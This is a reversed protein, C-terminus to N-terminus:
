YMFCELERQVLVIFRCIALSLYTQIITIQKSNSNYIYRLDKGGGVYRAGITADYGNQVKNVLEPVVSPQMQFDCDIWVLIQGSSNAIGDNLSSTLGRKNTRCILHIEPNQKKEEFIKM